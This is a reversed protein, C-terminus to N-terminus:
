YDLRPFYGDNRMEKLLKRVDQTDQIVVATPSLRRGFWKSYKPYALLEELVVQTDVELVTLKELSVIKVSKAWESVSAAVNDPVGNRSRERLFALLDDASAGWYVAQQVKRKTIQHVSARGVSVTLTFKLLYYWGLTDPEMVTVEFNSGVNLSVENCQPNTAGPCGFVWAGLPTLQIASIRGDDCVGLSLLSMWHFLRAINISQLHAETRCPRAPLGTERSDQTQASCTQLGLEAALCTVISDFSYWKGQKCGKLCDAMRYRMEQCFEDGPSSSASPNPGKWQNDVIWFRFLEEAQGVIGLEAWQRVKPNVIVRGDRIELLKLGKAVHFLYDLRAVGQGNRGAITLQERLEAMVRRPIKQEIVTLAVRHQEFYNLLALLDFFFSYDVGLVKNPEVVEIPGSAEFSAAAVDDGTGVGIPIFVFRKGNIYTEQLLLLSELSCIAKRLSEEGFPISQRIRELSVCGEADKVLRFVLQSAEGLRLLAENVQHAQGITTELFIMLERKFRQQADPLRWRESLLQLQPLDLEGLFKHLRKESQDDAAMQQKIARFIRLLDHPIRAITLQVSPRGRHLYAPGELIENGFVRVTEVVVIGADDFGALIQDIEEESFPLVNALDKVPIWGKPAAIIKDLVLEERPTLRELLSKVAYDDTMEDYLKSVLTRHEADADIRWCRAMTQLKAAPAGLLLGM